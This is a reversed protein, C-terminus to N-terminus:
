PRRVKSEAPPRPPRMPLRGRHRVALQGAKYRATRQARAGMTTTPWPPRRHAAGPTTTDIGPAPPTDPNPKTRPTSSKISAPPPGHVRPPNGPGSVFPRCLPRPPRRVSSSADQVVLACLFVCRLCDACATRAGAAQRTPGQQVAAARPSRFWPSHGGPLCGATSPPSGRAAEPRSASRGPGDRPGARFPTPAPPPRPSSHSKRPAAVPAPCHFGGCGTAIATSPPTRSSAFPPRGPSNPEPDVTDPNGITGYSWPAAQRATPELEM